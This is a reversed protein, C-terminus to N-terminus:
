PFCEITGAIMRSSCFIGCPMHSSMTMGPHIYTQIIHFHTSFSVKIKKYFNSSNQRYFPYYIPSFLINKNRSTYFKDICISDKFWLKYARFMKNLSKFKKNSLKM